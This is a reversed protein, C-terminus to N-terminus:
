LWEDIIESLRLDLARALAVLHALQPAKGGSLWYSVASQTVGLHNALQTQTIGRHQMAAKIRRINIPTTNM